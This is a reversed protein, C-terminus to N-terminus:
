YNFNIIKPTVFIIVENKTKTYQKNQFLQGIIPLKNLVPVKKNSNTEQNEIIGGLIITENNKLYIQTKIERTDILPIHDPSIVDAKIQDKNITLDLIIINNNNTVRPTVELSLLAKKFHINTGYNSSTQYPIEQGQQIHAQHNATVILHPQSIMKAKGESLLAQLELDLLLKQSAAKIIIGIGSNPNLINNNIFANPSIKNSNNNNSINLSAGFEKFASENMEIIKAEILIQKEPHDLTKIIKLIKQLDEKSSKIIIQNTRIDPTIADTNEFLYKKNKNLLDSINKAQAYSLQIINIENQKAMAFNTEFPNTIQSPNAQINYIFCTIAILIATTISTILKIIM